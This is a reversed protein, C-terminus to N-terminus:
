NYKRKIFWLDRLIVSCNFQTYNELFANRGLTGQQGITLGLNVSMNRKKSPIGIGISGNVDNIQQGSLQIYSQNYSFGAHLIMRDLLTNKYSVDKKSWEVGLGYRHSNVLKVNNGKIQLPSWKEFTYDGAITLKKNYTFALGARYQEPLTFYNSKTVDDQLVTDGNEIITTQYEARLDRRSLYTAGVTIDWNKNLPHFFQLGYSLRLNHLYTQETASILPNEPDAGVKETQNISGFVYAAQIGVSFYKGIRFGNGWYFQHLGGNGEFISNVNGQSGDAPQQNVIYYNVSSLPLLGLSTGWFKGIKFGVALKSFDFDSSHASEGNSVISSSKGSGSIEMIFSQNLLASFAAPNTNNLYDYSRMATTANGMGDLQGPINYQIEGIGLASYPFNPSTQAKAIAPLLLLLWCIKLLFNRMCKLKEIM